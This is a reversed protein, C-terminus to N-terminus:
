IFFLVKVGLNSVGLKAGTPCADKGTIKSGLTPWKRKGFVRGARLTGM